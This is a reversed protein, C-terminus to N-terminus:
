KFTRLKELEMIVIQKGKIDILKEKKLRSLSRIFSETSIGAAHALASRSVNNLAYKGYKKRLM